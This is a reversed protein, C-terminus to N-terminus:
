IIDPTVEFKIKFCDFDSLEDEDLCDLYIDLEDVNRCAAIIIPNLNYKFMLEIGLSLADRFSGHEKNKILNYAERFRSTSSFRFNDLPLTFIDDIIQQYSLKQETEYRKKVQKLEEFTFPLFAKQEKESVLLTDNNIEKEDCTIQLSTELDINDNSDM